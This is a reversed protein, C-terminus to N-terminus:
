SPVRPAADEPSDLHFTVRVYGGSRDQVIDPETENFELMAMRMLPWGRGRKEMFGKALMYNAMSENRSRPHAGARVSEVTMQNPLTGASTVDVHRDYVELLVNSGTVAYDRHVVANVLAERIAAEPLLWRDERILGRYAEFRGLGKFWGIAREVQEDLRGTAEAVQLTRSARDDGEYAVCDVRFSRTQPYRQPEKGFAMMGYLTAHLAGGLEALVGRNRLDDEDKPQPPSVTDIGLERLYERFSRRDIHEPTAAQIPREETMIYGFANYLEQLESPSPEVSSRERRVWVRGDYSLPEFGRQRSVEIWHIWGNPDEHRGNRASVPTSCGTQLFGTLREQVMESEEKVGVIERSPDVGLIIVGGETNAFACIARGIASFDGLGRKYETYRGEGLEIRELIDLWEM